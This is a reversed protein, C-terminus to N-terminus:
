FQGAQELSELEVILDEEKPLLMKRRVGGEDFWIAGYMGTPEELPASIHVGPNRESFAIRRREIDHMTM